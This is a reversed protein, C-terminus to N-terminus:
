SGTERASTTEGTPTPTPAAAATPLNWGCLFFWGTTYHIYYYGFRPFEIGSHPFMAQGGFGRRLRLPPFCDRAFDLSTLLPFGLSLERTGGESTISSLLHSLKDALSLSEVLFM